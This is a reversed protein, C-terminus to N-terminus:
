QAALSRARHFLEDRGWVPPGGRVPQNEFERYCFERSLDDIERM